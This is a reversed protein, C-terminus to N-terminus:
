KKILDMIRNLETYKSTKSVFGKIKMIDSYYDKDNTYNKKCIEVLNGKRDRFLM